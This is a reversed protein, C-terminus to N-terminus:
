WDWQHACLGQPQEVQVLDPWTWELVLEGNNLSLKLYKIEAPLTALSNHTGACARLHTLLIVKVENESLTIAAGSGHSIEKM